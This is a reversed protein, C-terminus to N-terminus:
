RPCEVRFPPPASKHQIRAFHCTYFGRIRVLCLPVGVFNFSISHSDLFECSRSDDEQSGNADNDGRHDNRVGRLRVLVLDVNWSALADVIRIWLALVLVTAPLTASM